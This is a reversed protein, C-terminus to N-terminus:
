SWTRETSLVPDALANDYKTVVSKDWAIHRSTITVSLRGYGSLLNLSTSSLQDVEITNTGM